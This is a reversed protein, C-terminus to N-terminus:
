KVSLKNERLKGGALGAEERKSRVVRRNIPHANTEDFLNVREFNLDTFSGRGRGSGLVM